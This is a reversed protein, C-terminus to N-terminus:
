SMGVRYNGIVDWICFLEHVFGGLGKVKVSFFIMLIWVSLALAFTTNIDSTPVARWKAHEGGFFSVIGAVWDVPLFDMSNM